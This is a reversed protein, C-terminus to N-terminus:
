ISDSVVCSYIHNILAIYKLCVIFSGFLSAFFIVFMVEMRPEVSSNMTTIGVSLSPHFAINSVITPMRIFPKWNLWLYVWLTLVVGTIRLLGQCVSVFEASSGFDSYRLAVRSGTM